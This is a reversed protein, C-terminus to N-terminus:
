PRGTPRRPSERATDTSRGVNACMDDDREPREEPEDRPINLPNYPTQFPTPARSPPAMVNIPEGSRILERM